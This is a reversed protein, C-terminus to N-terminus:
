ALLRRAENEDGSRVTVPPVGVSARVAISKDEVSLCGRAFFEQSEHEARM